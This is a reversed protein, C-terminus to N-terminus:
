ESTKKTEEKKKRGRKKPAAKEENSESKKTEEELEIEEEVKIAKEQTKEIEEEAEKVKDEPEAKIEEVKKEVKPIEEISLPRIIELARIECLSLPYTKKLTLSLAKQMRNSLIESFIEEDTRGATFDEIWNKCKNRLTKRVSRSVRNRTILFPKVKLLSNQTKADFSDEVYSIRKRIMRRIFYPLLKLKEPHAVAKNDETSIRVTLEMSKGKLQRTLDLKITKNKLEEVANAILEIKTHVVPIEVDIFKKRKTLVKTSTKEAM